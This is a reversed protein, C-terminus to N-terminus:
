VRETESASEETLNEKKALPSPEAPEDFLHEKWGHVASSCTSEDVDKKNTKGHLL